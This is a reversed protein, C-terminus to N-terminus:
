GHIYFLVPLVSDGTGKPKYIHAGLSGSSGVPIDIAEHDVSDLPPNTSGQLEDIHARAINVDITAGEIVQTSADIFARVEPYVVPYTM